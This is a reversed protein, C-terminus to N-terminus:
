LKCINKFTGSKDDTQAEESSEQLKAHLEENHEKAEQLKAKLLKNEELVRHLQEKYQSGFM